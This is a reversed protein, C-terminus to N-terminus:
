SERENGSQARLAPGMAACARGYDNKHVYITYTYLADERLVGGLRARDVSRVAGRLKVACPIGAASLGERVRFFREQSTLAALERRNFITLM